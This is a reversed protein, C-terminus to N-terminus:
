AATLKLLKLQGTACITLLYGHVLSLKSLPPTSSPPSKPFHKLHPIVVTSPDAARQSSLRGIPPSSCRWNFFYLSAFRQPSNSTISQGCISLARASQRAHGQRRSCRTTRRPTSAPTPLSPPPHLPGRNTLAFARLYEVGGLPTTALLGAYRRRGARATRARSDLLAPGPAAAVRVGGVSSCQPRPTTQGVDVGVAGLWAEVVAMASQSGVWGWHWSASIVGQAGRSGRWPRARRARTASTLTTHAGSLGRRSCCHWLRTARERGVEREEEGLEMTRLQAPHKNKARVSQRESREVVGFFNALVLRGRGGRAGGRAEGCCPRVEDQARSSPEWRRSVAQRPPRRLM